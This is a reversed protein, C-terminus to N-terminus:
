IRVTRFKNLKCLSLHLVTSRQQKYTCLEDEDDDDDDDSADFEEGSNFLDESSISDCSSSSIADDFDNGGGCGGNQEGGGGGGCSSSGWPGGGGGLSGQSSTSSKRALITSDQAAGLNFYSKGNEDETIVEHPSGPGSNSLLQHDVLSTLSTISPHMGQHHHHHHSQHHHSNLHDNVGGVSVPTAKAPNNWELPDVEIIPDIPSLVSNALHHHHHHHQQQRHHHHDPGLLSAFSSLPDSNNSATITKSYVGGSGGVPSHDIIAPAPLAELSSKLSELPDLHTTTGNMHCSSYQLISQGGCQSALSPPPGGGSTLLTRALISTTVLETSGVHGNEQGGGGSTQLIQTTIQHEGLVVGDVIGVETNGGLSLNTNNNISNDNNNNNLKAIKASVVEDGEIPSPTLHRKTALSAVGMKECPSSDAPKM